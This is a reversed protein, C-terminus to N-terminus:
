WSLNLTMSFSISLLVEEGNINGLFSSSYGFFKGSKKLGVDFAFGLENKFRIDSDKQSILGVGASAVYQLNDTQKILRSVLIANEVFHEKIVYHSSFLNGSALTKGAQYIHRIEGGWNNSLYNLNVSFSAGFASGIIGVGLGSELRLNNVNSTSQSVGQFPLILIIVILLLQIKKLM